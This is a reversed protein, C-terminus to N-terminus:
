LDLFKKLVAATHMALIMLYDLDSLSYHEHIMANDVYLVGYCGNPRMVAAILASRIREKEETQASVSPLVMSLGREVVQDVKESLKLDSLEVPRADRRKGAHYTMPGSPQDRLACWCRFASFQKLTIDLLVTLLEDLSDAECIAETAQSFDTLRKASLRMAPAHAADPKRVVTEHKPTTLAAELTLTDEMQGKSETEVNEELDIEIVFDTIRLVDGTKIEAKHIAKDNLYTKNASDLDEVMWKGDETTSIVAHQKSVAKDQLLVQNSSQRGISVSGEIFQFEKTTGNGAKVILRMKKRAVLIKRNTKCM